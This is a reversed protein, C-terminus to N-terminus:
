RLEPDGPGNSLFIGDPNLALVEEAPTKAPVVTLECGRDVLMRLINAKAGFDYAVVKFTKGKPLSKFGKGLEWSGEDWKFSDKTTVVKALDMGKLGAFDPNSNVPNNNFTVDALSFIVEGGNTRYFNVQSFTNISLSLLLVFVLHKFPKLHKM